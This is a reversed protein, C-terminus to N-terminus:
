VKTSTLLMKMLSWYLCRRRNKQSRTVRGKPKNLKQVTKM